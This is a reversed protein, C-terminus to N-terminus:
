RPLKQVNGDALVIMQTGDPMRWKALVAKPDRYNAMLYFTTDMGGIDRVDNTSIYGGSVLDQFTVSVPLPQGRSIHDRSYNKMAAVLKPLGNFMTPQDPLTLGEVYHQYLRLLPRTNHWVLLGSAAAILILIIVPVKKM